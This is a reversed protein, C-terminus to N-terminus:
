VSHILKKNNLGLILNKVTLKAMNKRTEVSSSGIHPTLVVNPMKTLPNKQNIPEEYFVDLAAGKIIKKKLASILDYENIIKGRATNVLFASNKM